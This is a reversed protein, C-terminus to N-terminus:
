AVIKKHIDDLIDNLESLTLANKIYEFHESFIKHSAVGTEDIFKGLTEMCLKLDSEFLPIPLEDNKPTIYPVQRYLKLISVNCKLILIM